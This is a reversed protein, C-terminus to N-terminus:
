HAPSLSGKPPCTGWYAPMSRGQIHPYSPGGSNQYAGVLSAAVCYQSWLVVNHVKVAM